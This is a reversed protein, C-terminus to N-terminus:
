IASKPPGAAPSLAYWDLRRTALMLAGLMAFLLLAGLLLANNESVLLGYLAAYLLAVFGALGLGRAWGQLVAVFYVALLLTSASAAAAYALGFSLKESLALLLLFFVAISLGVLGYQVPHLRLKRLTEFMFAALLTLGVFLFGYKVARTSLSYINQPQVLTVDFTDLGSASSAPEAALLQQRAGSVLSSVRWTADFGAETVSRQSALFRGGFSPHPWSSTLHATTDGALPAIGLKEHGVLALKLDFALPQRAQYAALAAGTLPAHIGGGLLSGAVAGPVRPAFRLSEGALSLQPSAEIGRVDSLGLALVPAQLEIVSDKETHPIGATNVAEFRGAINANLSYFLVKFLGRYREQPSLQGTIDAKEPFTYLVSTKSRAIQAIAEGKDNLKTQTWRETYPTLLVPGILKQPGTYTQALESAASQQSGGREAILSEIQGLPICLLLMLALLTLVKTLLSNKPLLSM